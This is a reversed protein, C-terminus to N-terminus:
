DIESNNGNLIKKSLDSMISKNKEKQFSLVRKDFAVCCEKEFNMKNELSKIELRLRNFRELLSDSFNSELQRGVFEIESVKINRQHNLFAATKGLLAYEEDLKSQVVDLKKKSFTAMKFSNVSNM